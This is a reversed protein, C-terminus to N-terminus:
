VDPFLDGAYELGGTKMEQYFTEFDKVRKTNQQDSLAKRAKLYEIADRIDATNAHVLRRYEDKGIAIIAFGVLKRTPGKAQQFSLGNVHSEIAKSGMRKLTGILASVTKKKHEQNIEEQQEKTFSIEKAEAIAHAKLDEGSFARSGYFAVQNRVAKKLVDKIDGPVEVMEIQHSVGTMTDENPGKM